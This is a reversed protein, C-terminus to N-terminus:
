RNGKKQNEEKTLHQLNWPVHLGCSTKGRLPMIHDVEYGKPCTKYFDQIQKLQEKTLWKPTAQMRTARRKAEGAANIHPNLKKYHATSCKTSCYKTTQKQATFNLECNPCVKDLVVDKRSEAYIAQNNCRPSCYRVSEKFATFTANCFECQKERAVGVAM